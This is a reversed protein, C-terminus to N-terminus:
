IKGDIGDEAERYKRFATQLREIGRKLNEIKDVYLTERVKTCSCESCTELVDASVTPHVIVPHGCTTCRLEESVELHGLHYGQCTVCRYVRLTAPNKAKGSAVLLYRKTAADSADEFRRKRACSKKQSM